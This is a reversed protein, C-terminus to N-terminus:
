LKNQAMLSYLRNMHFDMNGKMPQLQPQVEKVMDFLKGLNESHKKHVDLNDGDLQFEKLSDTAGEKLKTLKEYQEKNVIPKANAETIYADLSEMGEIRGTKLLAQIEEFLKQLSVNSNEKENTEETKQNKQTQIQQHHNLMSEFTETAENSSLNSHSTKAQQTNLLLSEISTVEMPFGKM